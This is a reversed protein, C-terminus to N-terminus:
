LSSVEASIEACLPHPPPPMVSTKRFMCHSAKPVSYDAVWFGRDRFGGDGGQFVIFDEASLHQSKHAAAGTFSKTSSSLPFFFFCSYFCSSPVRGDTRSTTQMLIASKPPTPVHRTVAGSPAGRNVYVQLSCLLFHPGLTLLRRACTSLNVCLVHEQTIKGWSLHIELSTQSVM